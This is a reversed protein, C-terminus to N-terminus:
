IKVLGILDYGKEKIYLNIERLQNETLENYFPHEDLNDFHKFFTVKLKGFPSDYIKNEEYKGVENSVRTTYIEKGDSIRKSYSEYENSPFDIYCVKENSWDEDPDFGNKREWNIHNERAVRVAECGNNKTASADDTVVFFPLDYENALDRVKACFERAKIMKLDDKM